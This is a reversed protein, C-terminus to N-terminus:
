VNIIYYLVLQKLILVCKKGQQKLVLLCKTKLNLILLCTAQCWCVCYMCCWCVNGVFFGSVVDLVVVYYIVFYCLAITSFLWSPNIKFLWSIFIFYIFFLFYFWVLRHRCAQRELLRRTCDSRVSCVDAYTLMRSCVHAYTLPPSSTLSTSTHLSIASLKRIIDDAYTLM